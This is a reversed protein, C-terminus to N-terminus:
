TLQINIRRINILLSLLIDIVGAIIIDIITKM